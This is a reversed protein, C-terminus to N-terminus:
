ERTGRLRNCEAASGGALGWDKGTLKSCGDGGTGETVATKKHMLKLKNLRDANTWMTLLANYTRMGCDMRGRQTRRLGTFETLKVKVASNQKIIFLNKNKPNRMVTQMGPDSVRWGCLSFTPVTMCIKSACQLMKYSFQVISYFHSSQNSSKHEVTHSSNGQLSAQGWVAPDVSTRNASLPQIPLPRLQSSIRCCWQVCMETSSQSVLSKEPQHSSAAENFGAEDYFQDDGALPIPMVIIHLAAYFINM